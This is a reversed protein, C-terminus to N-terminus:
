VHDKAILGVGCVPQDQRGWIILETLSLVVSM